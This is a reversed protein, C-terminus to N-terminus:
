QDNMNETTRRKKQQNRRNDSCKGAQPSNWTLDAICCIPKGWGAEGHYSAYKNPIAKGQASLVTM